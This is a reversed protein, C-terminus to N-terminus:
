NGRRTQFVDVMHWLLQLRRTPPPLCTASGRLLLCACVLVYMNFTLLVSYCLCVVQSLCAPVSVSLCCIFLYVFLCHFLCIDRRRRGEGGRRSRRSMQLLLLINHEGKDQSLNFAEVWDIHLGVTCPRIIPLNRTWVRSAFGNRSYLRFHMFMRWFILKFRSIWGEALICWVIDRYKVKIRTGNEM